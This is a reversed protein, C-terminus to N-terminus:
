EDKKKEQFINAVPIIFFVANNDLLLCKVSPQPPFIVAMLKENKQLLSNSSIDM